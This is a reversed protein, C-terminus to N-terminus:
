EKRWARLRASRARTNRAVEEPRAFVPRKTLTRGLARGRCVCVPLEPPCVCKRSWERFSGKVLRDELSHYSLVVFVGKPELRDRLAPLARELSELERNVAIRLAQFLRAKDQTDLKPGLARRLAAVFDDSTEFPRQRRREVVVRALRRHRPEEGYRAFIEALEAESAQNLLDAATPGTSAAGAMRMDLPTGPRFSFGREAEDLQRSSVGLDLLAGALGVTLREAVDAYDAQILEVRDGFRALRERSVAVAEPDRDVGIVRADPGAELIAAAHGGGGLTGDFYWGGRSPELHALVEAVMVPEHYGGGRESM